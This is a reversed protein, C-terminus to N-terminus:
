FFDDISGAERGPPKLRRFDIWMDFVGALCILGAVVPQLLAIVYIAGRVIRSSALMPLYYAMIALGQCFYIAAMVVFGNLAATRAAQQPIFIGFGTALLLWILWEPTRWTVLAGFVQYGLKENGLWRSVLGLNALVTTGAVIAAMAPSLQATIKLVMEGVQKSEARSMGMKEYLAASHSMAVSVSHQIQALLAAPSGAWLLLVGTVAVLIAATGAFVISEFSWQRRVTAAILVTAVGLSVAFGVAQIPGAVLGSLALTIILCIALRLYPRPRALAYILIPAPACLMVGAGLVPVLGGLLFFLAALISARALDLADKFSV